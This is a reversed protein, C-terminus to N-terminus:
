EHEAESAQLDRAALESSANVAAATPCRYAPFYDPSVPVLGGLENLRTRQENLRSYVEPATVWRWTEFRHRRDSFGAKFKFLSDEKSGVGGGLHCVRAGEATGWARATDIVLGMPSLRLFADRTAGLHYQVIGDCLTFLGGAILENDLEAVFLQLRGDLERSLETFYDAGFFYSGHAHVRRMTEHYMEAFETLHRQERDLTCTVGNRLLKNIRTRYTGSYQARQTEPALTLDISVTQGAPRSEGLGALLDRQELLPHLRSFVSVIRQGALMRALGEHFKAVVEAPLAASSAVPGCYGYVSTADKWGDPEDASVPRVLLPLAILHEGDRYVFCQATGEGRAEALRHYRPLHYFDHQVCCDLVDSWEEEDATGLIAFGSVPRVAAATM